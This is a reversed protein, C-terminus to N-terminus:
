SCCACPMPRNAWQCRTRLRVCDYGQQELASRSALPLKVCRWVRCVVSLCGTQLGKVSQLSRLSVCVGRQECAVSPRSVGFM